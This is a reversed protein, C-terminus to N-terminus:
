IEMLGEDEGFNEDEKFKQIRQLLKAEQVGQKRWEIKELEM